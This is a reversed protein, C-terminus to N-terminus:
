SAFCELSETGIGDLPEDLVIVRRDALMAQALGFRIGRMTPQAVPSAGGDITSSRSTRAHVARRTSRTEDARVGSLM